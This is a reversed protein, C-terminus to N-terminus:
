FLLGSERLGEALAKVRGHYLYSGRDFYVDTIDNKLALKGLELGVAKAVESKDGANGKLSVSSYSVLTKQASDDIIQAYIHSLSRFVTVRAKLGRSTLKNRVRFKRRETRKSLNKQLSM